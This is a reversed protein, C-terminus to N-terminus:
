TKGVSSYTPDSGPRGKGIWQKRFVGTTKMIHADKLYELVKPLSFTTAENTLLGIGQERM